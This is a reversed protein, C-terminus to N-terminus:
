VTFGLGEVRCGLGCVMVGWFRRGSGQVGFELGTVRLGLDARGASAKYLLPVESMLFV